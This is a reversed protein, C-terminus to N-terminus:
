AFAMEEDVTWKAGWSGFLAVPDGSKEFHSHYIWRVNEDKVGIQNLRDTVSQKALRSAEEYTEAMVLGIRLEPFAELVKRYKEIGYRAFLGYESM